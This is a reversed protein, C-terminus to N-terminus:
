SELDKKRVAKGDKFHLGCEKQEPNEWWWRGARVDEGPEIARTCPECGISPYGQDHLTNYPIKEKKVYEWVEKETWYALPNIKLINFTNDWEFLETHQRTVAQSRRIGTIWADVTSLVRTLPKVKRIHCCEKRNEISEYFSQPGKKQYLHEVDEREPFYIEYKFDYNEMTKHMVDYTEQNLRGTDLVFIRIARNEKMCYATLVQDEVGLSSALAVKDGFTTYVYSLLDEIPKNRYVKNLDELQKESLIKKEEM